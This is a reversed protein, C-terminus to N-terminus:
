LKIDLFAQKMVIDHFGFIERPGVSNFKTFTIGSSNSVEGMNKAPRMVAKFFKKWLCTDIPTRPEVVFLLYNRNLVGFGIEFLWKERTFGVEYLHIHRSQTFAGECHSILESIHLVFTKMRLDQHSM